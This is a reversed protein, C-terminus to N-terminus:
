DFPLDEVLKLLEQDESLLHALKAKNLQKVALTLWENAKRTEQMTIAYSALKIPYRDDEPFVEVKSRLIDWAAEVGGHPTPINELSTALSFWADPDEPFRQTWRNAILLADEWLQRASFIQWTVALYKANRKLAQPVKELEKSAEEPLGLKLWGEAANLYHNDKIDM